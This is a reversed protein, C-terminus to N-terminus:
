YAPTVDMPQASAVPAAYAVCKAFDKHVAEVASKAQTRKTMREM